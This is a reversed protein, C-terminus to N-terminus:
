ARRRRRRRPADMPLRMRRVGDFQLLANGVAAATPLLGIEGVGKAGYPGILDPVEVGIVEVEPMEKARLIGLKRLHTSVPYGGRMPFDESIAYGIGMHIAGEIQGEFMQPNLIKGADHAAVVKRIYGAEEDLIVLQTAYSYAFHTLVEDVEEGPKTTWNVCWRGEYERGVLEELPQARLDTRLQKCADILANGVLASARSATTMGAIQGSATDARVEVIEPPLGTESCVVQLAVTNVGQGMETWGHDVLVHDPAIVTIRAHSEEVMGNGIGTNKLACALGAYKAAYFQDKVAELTARVGAGGRIVQGTATMGGDVLANEYRIQWRDFGGKECLEDILSELGFIAQNAGFGRMAGAPINNTYVACADVWAAPFHYAGTAHGASRELVKSGVSGYAGTDGLFSARVFTFKGRTDCGLQYEMWIPHRKVSMRMSEDRNLRVKVPVDLLYAMLAAHGQVSLDEKGGFAGGTPLLTVRVREEPVALLRAIGERDDYIGQGQSLLHLGGDSPFCVACEPELYGHEIRQTEYVGHVVWTSDAVAREMDGRRIITHSHLNGSEHIQPADEELARHMDTLPELVEYEVRIKAAAERAIEESEAVVSAIVDGVYRTVEGAAVMLPWDKEVLGTFREGPVDAATFVRLVGYTKEALTTDIALIMARPHDSFKLAGYKMGEMRVDDSFRHEGLILARGDYRPQPSGIRGDGSPPPIEDEAQIAQAAMEIAQIVKKYGTCRCLNPTLAKEIEAYSPEPNTNILANARMVIGPTCFGCQAAGMKLFANAFVERRYEGLGEVTTVIGADVKTMPTVCSLVAKGNLDVTCAGCAAQPACGNKASLINEHERLYAM